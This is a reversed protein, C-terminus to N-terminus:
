ENVDKQIEEILVKFAVRWEATLSDSCFLRHLTKLEESSAKKLLRRVVVKVEEDIFNDCGGIAPNYDEQEQKILNIGFLKAKTEGSSCTSEVSHKKVFTANGPRM